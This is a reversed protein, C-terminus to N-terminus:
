EDLVRRIAAQVDRAVVDEERLADILAIRHPDKRCLDLYADRVRRHFALGRREMRDLDGTLRRFGLAPDLDLLITLRPELDDSALLCSERVAAEDLGGAGAQYVMTSDNFRDCLVVLGEALSPRIVESVHQARDALMLFLETRSSCVAGVRSDKIGTSDKVGPSLLLSRLTQGLPTGGPEFTSLVPIGQEELWRAARQIQTSKGAGECGEFTIFVGAKAPAGPDALRAEAQIEQEITPEGSEAVEVELPNELVPSSLRASTVKVQGGKVKQFRQNWIREAM